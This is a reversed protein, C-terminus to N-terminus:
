INIDRASKKPTSSVSLEKAIQWKVWASSLTERSSKGRTQCGSCAIANRWPPSNRKTSFGALVLSKWLLWCGDSEMGMQPLALNGDASGNGSPGAECHALASKPWPRNPFRHFFSDHAQSLPFPVTSSVPCHSEGAPRWWLNEKHDDTKRKGGECGSKERGPIVWWPWNVVAEKETKGAGRGGRLEPGPISWSGELM